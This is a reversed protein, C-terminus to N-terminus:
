KKKTDTEYFQMLLFLRFLFIQQTWVYKISPIVVNLTVILDGKKKETVVGMGKLVIKDGSQSGPPIQIELDDEGRPDPIKGVNGCIAEVVHLTHNYLINYNKRSFIEDNL